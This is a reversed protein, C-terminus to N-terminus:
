NGNIVEEKDKKNLSKFRLIPANKSRYIDYYRYGALLGENILEELYLRTDEQPLNILGSVSKTTMATGNEFSNYIIKKTGSLRIKLDHDKVWVGLEPRPRGGDIFIRIPKNVVPELCMKSRSWQVEYWDAVVTNPRERSMSCKVHHSIFPAINYRDIDDEMQTLGLFLLDLHGLFRLISGTTINMTSVTRFKSGYRHFEDLHWVSDKLLVAGDSTVWNDTIERMAQRKAEDSADKVNESKAVIMMKDIESLLVDENYITWDGGFVDTFPTDTLIRKTTYTNLKHCLTSAFLGKGQRIGGTILVGGAIGIFQGRYRLYGVIRNLEEIQWDGLDPKVEIQYLMDETTIVPM